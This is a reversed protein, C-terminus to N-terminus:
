GTKRLYLRTSAAAIAFPRARVSGSEPGARGATPSSQIPHGQRRSSFPTIPTMARIRTPKSTSSLSARRGSKRSSQRRCKAGIIPQARRDMKKKVSNCSSRSKPRSRGPGSVWSFQVPGNVSQRILDDKLEPKWRQPCSDLNETGSPQAPAICIVNWAMRFTGQMGNRYAPSCDSSHGAWAATSMAACLAVTPIIERLLKM